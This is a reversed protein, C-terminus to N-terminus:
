KFPNMDKSEIIVTEPLNNTNYPGASAAIRTPFKPSFPHHIINVPNSALFAKPNTPLDLRVKKRACATCKM